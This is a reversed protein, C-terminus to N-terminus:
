SKAKEMNNLDKKLNDFLELPIRRVPNISPQIDPNVVLHQDGPLNGVNGYSVTPFSNILDNETTTKMYHVTAGKLNAKNIEIFGM